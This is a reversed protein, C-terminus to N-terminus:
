NLEKIHQHTDATDYNLPKLVETIAKAAEYDEQIIMKKYQMMYDQAKKHGNAIDNACKRKVDLYRQENWSM